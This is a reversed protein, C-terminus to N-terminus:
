VRCACWSFSRTRRLSRGAEHYETVLAEVEARTLLDLPVDAFHDGWIRVAAEYDAYTKPRTKRKKAALWPVAAEAFTPAQPKPPALEAATGSRMSALWAVADTRRPFRRRHQRRKGNRDRPGLCLKEVPNSDARKGAAVGEVRRVPRRSKRPM